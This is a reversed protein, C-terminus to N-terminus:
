KPPLVSQGGHDCSNLIIYSWVFSVFSSDSMHFALNIAYECTETTNKKIANKIVNLAALGSVSSWSIYSGLSM